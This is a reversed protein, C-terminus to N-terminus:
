TDMFLQADQVKRLQYVFKDANPAFNDETLMEGKAIPRLVKGGPALGLPIARRAHAEAFLYTRGFIDPSGIEGATEGAKLARKAITAVESVLRKSVITSEGYLVAEAISVTTEVNCLHYPRYLTYYPGDGMSLFKMDVRVRPDPSTIIAFVGPAVKGTSYDVCGRRSLIGGDEKPTFVKNLDPVDVRAGHMGPIDPVLGTANSMAALEVM